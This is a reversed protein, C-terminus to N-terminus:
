YMDNFNKEIDFHVNPYPLIYMLDGLEHLFFFVPLYTFFRKLSFIVISIETQYAKNINTSDNYSSLFLVKLVKVYKYMYLSTQSIRIHTDIGTGSTIGSVELKLRNITLSLLSGRKFCDM